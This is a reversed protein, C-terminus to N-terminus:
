KNYQLNTQIYNFIIKALNSSKNRPKHVLLDDQSIIVLTHISLNGTTVGERLSICFLYKLKSCFM